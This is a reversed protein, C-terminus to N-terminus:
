TTIEPFLELQGILTKTKRKTAPKKSIIGTDKEEILTIKKLDDLIKQTLLTTDVERENYDSGCRKITVTDDKNFEVNYYSDGITIFYTRTMNCFTKYFKQMSFDPKLKNIWDYRWKECYAILGQAICQSYNLGEETKLPQFKLMEEKDRADELKKLARKCTTIRSKHKGGSSEMTQIATKLEQSTANKLASQYNGDTTPISTLISIRRESETNTDKKM